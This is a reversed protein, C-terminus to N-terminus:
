HVAAGACSARLPELQSSLLNARVLEDAMSRARETKGEACLLLVNLVLREGRLVGGPFARAHEDLSSRVRELDGVRLGIQAERILRVEKGLLDEPRDGTTASSRDDKASDNVIAGPLSTRAAPERPMINVTVSRDSRADPLDHPSRLTTLAPSSSHATENDTGDRNAPVSECAPEICGVRPASPVGAMAKEAVPSKERDTVYNATFGTAAVVLLVGALLKGFHARLALRIGSEPARLGSGEASSAASAEAARALVADRMRRRVEASPAFAPQLRELLLTSKTRLDSM